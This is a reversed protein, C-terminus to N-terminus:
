DLLVSKNKLIYNTCSMISLIAALYLVCLGFYLVFRAWDQHIIGALLVVIVGVIQVITKLKGWIDAALVINKGVAILRFGGIIMERSVFVLAILLFSLRLANNNYLYTDFIFLLAAANVLIKDAIPDLFKGLDTVLCLKRALYGDLWDTLSALVFVITAYLRNHPIDILFFAVFIPVLIIRLITLKTPLNM